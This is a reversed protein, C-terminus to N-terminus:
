LILFCASSQLPEDLEVFRPPSRHLSFLVSAQQLVLRGRSLQLGALYTASLKPQQCPMPSAEILIRQTHQTGQKSFLFPFAIM